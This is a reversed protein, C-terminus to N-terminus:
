NHLMTIALDLARFTKVREFVPITHEFGVSAHIDTQMKERKTSDKVPLPRVVPQDGTWSLIDTLIM